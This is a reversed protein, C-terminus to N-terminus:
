ISNLESILIQRIDKLAKGTKLAIKKCDEFEPMRRLSGNQMEIEKVQVVGLSTDMKLLKRNLITRSLKQKRVGISTTENFIVNLIDQEKESHCLVSFLYGPRGKKMLIPTLFAEVAGAKLVTEILYPFIQPNLDDINCELLLVEDSKEADLAGTKGIQVRLVNPTEKLDASGAGYGTAILNYEPVKERECLTALVAAGTPTVLEKQVPGQKIHFNELLYATAPAPVPYTGHAMKVSGGGVSIASCYAKEINLTHYALAAGTIDVIADLAGVEHFHVKSIHTGHVRAEAEALKFFISKATVKVKDPINAVDIIKEIDALHRHVHEPLFDVHVKTASLGNKLVKVIKVTVQPLNLKEPLGTLVSSELGADIFAGLLMDGSIGSFCDFYVIKM